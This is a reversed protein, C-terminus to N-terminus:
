ISTYNFNLASHLLINTFKVSLLRFLFNTGAHTFRHITPPHSEVLIFLAFFKSRNVGVVINPFVLYHKHATDIHKNMYDLLKPM